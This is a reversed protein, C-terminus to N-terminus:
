VNGSIGKLLAAETLRQILTSVPSVLDSPGHEAGHHHPPVRQASRQVGGAPEGDAEACGSM